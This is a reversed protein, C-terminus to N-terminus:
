GIPCEMMTLLEDPSFPIPRRTHVARHCNPCLPVLDTRPDYPKPAAVSALPELHHVEIIAGATGYRLRPELGCTACKEGHIRICLLRNRPNRERRRIVSQLIAGEVAPLADSSPEDIVDYGILEAMAAMMPVIVENCTAVLVAENGAQSRARVTAVMRFTGDNVTWENRRQGTIEIDVNERISEVLARALQIDEASAKGIQAIVQGSFQGFTLEVRYGGLGHPRLDAVPGHREDLDGFWIRIGARLGEHRVSAGIAAGTGLQLAQIIQNEKGDLMDTKTSPKM